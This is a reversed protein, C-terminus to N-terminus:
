SQVVDVSILISLATIVVLSFRFMTRAWEKDDQHSKFGKMCLGLWILSLLAAAALYIYGTYGFLPLMLAAATFAIVYFLMRRKTADMGKRIPLVPISAAAYDDLRYLSIAFFHPMQWLATILFLLLAGGDLCSSAACYGVVPPVGGAISGIETAYATRYKWFSYVCVYILFGCAAMWVTLLNTGVALILFGGLGLFLAFLIANRASISGTVLARNKTRMMKEDAHRDIFNNFVCASAIVLSLGGMAALFLSFDLHGKSALAFGAALTILNGLVIGPKAVLCYTKIM